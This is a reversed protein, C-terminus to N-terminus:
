QDALPDEGWRYDLAHADREQQREQRHDDTQGETSNAIMRRDGFGTMLPLAQEDPREPSAAYTCNNRHALTM